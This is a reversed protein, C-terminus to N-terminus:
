ENPKRPAQIALQHKSCWFDEFIIIIERKFCRCRFGLLRYVFVRAYHQYYYYYYYLIVLLLYMYSLEQTNEMWKFVFWHLLLLFTRVCVSYVTCQVGFMSNFRHVLHNVAEILREEGCFKKWSILKGEMRKELWQARTCLLHQTRKVFELCRLLAGFLIPNTSGYQISFVTIKDIQFESLLPFISHCVACDIWSVFQLFDIQTQGLVGFEDIEIERINITIRIM